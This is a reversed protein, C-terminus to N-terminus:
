IVHFDTLHLRAKSVGTLTITDHADVAIVTNGCGDGHAIGLLAQAKAFISALDIRGEFEGDHGIVDRL